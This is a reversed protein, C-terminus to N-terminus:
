VDEKDFGDDDVLIVDGIIYCQDHYEPRCRTKYLESGKKNLGLHPKYRGMDDCFMVLSRTLTVHDLAPANILTSLDSQYPVLSEEGNVKILLVKGPPLPLKTEIIAQIAKM